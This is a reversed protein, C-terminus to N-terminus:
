LITKDVWMLHDVGQTTLLSRAACHLPRVKTRTTLARSFLKKEKWVIALFSKDKWIWVSEIIIINEIISIIVQDFPGTSRKRPSKQTLLFYLYLEFTDSVGSDATADDWVCLKWYFYWSRKLKEDHQPMGWSLDVDNWMLSIVLREWFLYYHM